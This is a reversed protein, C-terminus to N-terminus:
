RDSLVTLLSFVYALGLGAFTGIYWFWIIPDSYGYMERAWFPFSAVGLPMPFTWILAWFTGVLNSMAWGWVSTSSCKVSSYLINWRWEPRRKNWVPVQITLAQISM